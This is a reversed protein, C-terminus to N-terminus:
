PNKAIVSPLQKVAEQMELPTSQLVQRVSAHHNGILLAKLCPESVTQKVKEGSNSHILPRGRTCTWTCSGPPPPPWRACATSHWGGAPGTHPHSNGGPRGPWPPSRCGGRDGGSQAMGGARLSPWRLAVRKRAPVSAIHKCDLTNGKQSRAVIIDEEKEITSFTKLLAVLPMADHLLHLNQSQAQFLLDNLHVPIDHRM